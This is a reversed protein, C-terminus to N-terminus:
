RRSASCTFIRVLKLYYHWDKPTPHRSEKNRLWWVTLGGIIIGFLAVAANPVALFCPTFDFLSNSLPGWGEVNHCLFSHQEMVVASSNNAVVSLPFRTIIM